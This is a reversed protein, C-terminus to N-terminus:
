HRAQEVMEFVEITDGEKIDNFKEISLGCEFGSAVDKVDDKFRKLSGIKGEYVVRGERLLRVDSHRKIQGDTVFCGAVLGVKSVSFTERVELHGIVDEKFKPKLLGKIASEIDEILEYIIKYTKIQVGEKKAMDLAGSDPRVNFGVVMGKAAHALLIDSENIGGVAWHIVRVEVDENSIKDLLGKIAEGTGSVDTKIVLSLTSFYEKKVKSFLDELSMQSHPTTVSVKQLAQRKKIIRQAQSEKQCIHFHDGAIASGELGLIEVPTSPGATKIKQGRDNMLARVRGCVQGAVIYQGVEVTGDQILVTAVNGRGKKVESEIVVGMGSRKPNAKLEQMEAVLLITELLDSLGDGKVASIPVFITHGGWDESVLDFQAAEQRIKDVNAEPKDIKSVAVIIPIKAAKAHNIAEITQPMVGDDAAIVIIVIDTVNAGRARMATFAEHGPTDIFTISKGKDLSICYAGIHQTIGGAEGSAVNKKHLADLLTTKGHDIHGMVTVIPARPVKEAELDGFSAEAILDNLTREVNETEYQFESAILSATEYDLISHINVSVGSKILASILQSSKVQMQEAFDSLKIQDYIKIVRKHAAPTTIKTKQAQRDLILTKKKPQFIVERKRFESGLFLSHADEKQQSPKPTKLSKLHAPQKKEDERSKFSDKGSAKLFDPLNKPLDQNKSKEFLEQQTLPLDIEGVIAKGTINTDQKTKTSTADMSSFSEQFSQHAKHSSSPHTSGKSAKSKAEKDQEKKMRAHAQKVSPIDSAKRRIIKQSSKKVQTKGISASKENTKERADQSPKKKRVRKSKSQMTKKQKETESLIHDRITQLTKEDLETMHNKVPINWKRLKEMLTLTEFGIEKAFEFVKPQPVFM